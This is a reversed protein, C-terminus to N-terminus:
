KGNNDETHKLFKANRKAQKANERKIEQRKKYGKYWLEELIMAIIGIVVYLVVTWVNGIYKTLFVGIVVFIPICILFTIFFRKYLNSVDKRTM